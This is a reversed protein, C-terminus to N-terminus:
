FTNVEAQSRFLPGSHREIGFLVNFHIDCPPEYIIFLTKCLEYLKQYDVTYYHPKSDKLEKIKM